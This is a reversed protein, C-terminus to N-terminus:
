FLLCVGSGQEFSARVVRGLHRRTTLIAQFAHEVFLAVDGLGRVLNLMHRGITCVMLLIMSAV